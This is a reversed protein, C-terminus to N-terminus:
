YFDQDAWYHKEQRIRNKYAWVTDLVHVILYGLTLKIYLLMKDMEVLLQSIRQLLETPM